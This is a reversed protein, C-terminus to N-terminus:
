CCTLWFPSILFSGFSASLMPVLSSNFSPSAGLDKKVERPLGHSQAFRSRISGKRKQLERMVLSVKM